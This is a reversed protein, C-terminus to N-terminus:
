QGARQQPGPLEYLLTNGEEPTKSGVHQYHLSSDVEAPAKQPEHYSEFHAPANDNEAVEGVKERKKRRFLFFGAGVGFAVAVPIGIGLGVKSSTPFGGSPASSPNSSSPIPTAEDTPVASSLSKVVLSETQSPSSPSESLIPPTENSSINFAHSNADGLSQGEEFISLFFVNSFTLNKNTGVLWGFSTTNIVNQLVYEPNEVWNEFTGNVQYLIVSVPRDEKGSTWTIRLMTRDPYVPNRSFSEEVFAPPNVFEVCCSLSVLSAAIILSLIM